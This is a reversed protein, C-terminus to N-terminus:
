AQKKKWPLQGSIETQLEISLFSRIIIIIGLILVGQMTPESAVSRIIDAVILFELSLIITKAIGERIDKFVEKKTSRISKLYIPIAKLVGLILILVALFNFTNEIVMFFENM